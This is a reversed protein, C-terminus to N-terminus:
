TFESRASPRPAWGRAPPIRGCPPPPGGAGPPPGWRPIANLQFFIRSELTHKNHINDCSVWRTDQKVCFMSSLCIKNDM